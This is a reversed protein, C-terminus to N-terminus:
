CAGVAMTCLNFQDGLLAALPPEVLSSSGAIM